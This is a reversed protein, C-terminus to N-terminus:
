VRAQLPRLEALVSRLPLPTGRRALALSAYVGPLEANGQAQAIVNLGDDPNTAVAFARSGEFLALTKGAATEALARLAAPRAAWARSRADRDVRGFEVKSRRYQAEFDSMSASPTAQSIESLRFVVRAATLEELARHLYGADLAKGARTLSAQIQPVLDKWEP